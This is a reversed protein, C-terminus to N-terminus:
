ENKLAAKKCDKKQMKTTPKVLNIINKPRLTMTINPGIAL